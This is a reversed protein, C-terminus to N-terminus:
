RSRRIEPEGFFGAPEGAWFRYVISDHRRAQPTRVPGAVGRGSTIVRPHEADPQGQWGRRARGDLRFGHARGGADPSPVPRRPSLQWRHRFLREMGGCWRVAFRTTWSGWASSGSTSSGAWRWHSVREASGQMAWGDVHRFEWRAYYDRLFAQFNEEGLVDHLAVFMLEARNYVAPQLDRFQQVPRRADRDAGGCRHARRRGAERPPITCADCGHWWRERPQATADHPACDHLSITKVQREARTQYSTLGEDMWGSHWENNALMGHAYIHGGEHLILGLSASGNMMMM